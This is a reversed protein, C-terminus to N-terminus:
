PTEAFDARSDQHTVVTTSAAPMWREGEADRVCVGQLPDISVVEGRILRGAHRFCALTGRLVDRSAFERKVEDDSLQLAADVAILLIELAEVREITHGLQAVSVALDQLHAPWASQAINMGIGVIARTDTQEILIGALKRGDIVIDNPWKIGVARGLMREAARAAGIATAVALSGLDRANVVLSVALGQGTDDTWTRGWRGRGASQRGAIIVDGLKADMRRAADQTSDTERIVTARRLVACSRLAAALRDPWQEIPVAASM